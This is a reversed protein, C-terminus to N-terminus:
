AGNSGHTEHIDRVIEALGKGEVEALVAQELLIRTAHTASSDGALAKIKDAVVKLNEKKRTSSNAVEEERKIEIVSCKPITIPAQLQLDEGIGGYTGVVCIYENTEKFLFGITVCETLHPTYETAHFWNGGGVSDIWTVEVKIM